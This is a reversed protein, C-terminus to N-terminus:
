DMESQIESTIELCNIKSRCDELIVHLFPSNVRPSLERILTSGHEDLNKWVPINWLNYGSTNSVSINVRKWAILFSEYSEFIHLPMTAANGRRNFGKPMGLYITGIGSVITGPCHAGCGIGTDCKTACDPGIGCTCGPCQYTKIATLRDMKERKNM